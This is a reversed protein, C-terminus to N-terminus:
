REDRVGSEPMEVLTVIRGTATEEVEVFGLSVLLGLGTEAVEDSMGLLNALYDEIPCSPNEHVAVLLGLYTAIGLPGLRRGFDRVLRAEVHLMMPRRPTVITPARRSATEAPPNSALWAQFTKYSKDSKHTNCYQCALVLNEPRNTGGKSRPIVHDL